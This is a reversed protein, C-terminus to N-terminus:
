RKTKVYRGNIEQIERNKEEAKKRVAFEVIEAIREPNQKEMIEATKEIALDLLKIRVWDGKAYKRGEKNKYFKEKGTFRLIEADELVEKKIKEKDQENM